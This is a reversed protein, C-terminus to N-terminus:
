EYHTANLKAILEDFFPVGGIKQVFLPQTIVPWGDQEAHWIVEFGAATLKAQLDNLKIFGPPARHGRSLWAPNNLLIRLGTLIGGKNFGTIGMLLYYLGAGERPWAIWTSGQTNTIRKAEQLIMQNDPTTQLVNYTLTHSLSHDVLPLKTVDAQLFSVNNIGLSKRIKEAFQLRSLSIDLAIVQRFYSAAAFSWNGTGCGIDILIDGRFGLAEFRRKYFGLGLEWQSLTFDDNPSEQEIMNLIKQTQESDDRLHHRLAHRLMANKVRSKM